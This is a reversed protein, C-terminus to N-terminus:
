FENKAGAASHRRLSPDSTRQTHQDSTKDKTTRLHRTNHSHFLGPLTQKHNAAIVVLCFTYLRFPIQLPVWTIFYRYQTIIIDKNVFNSRLITYNLYSMIEATLNVAPCGEFTVVNVPGTRREDLTKMRRGVVEFAKWREPNHYM